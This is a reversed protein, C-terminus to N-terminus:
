FKKVSILSACCVHPKIFDLNIKQGQMSFYIYAKMKTESERLEQWRWDINILKQLSNKGKKVLLKLTVTIHKAHKPIIRLRFKIRDGFLKSM